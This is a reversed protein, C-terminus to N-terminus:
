LHTHADDLIFRLTALRGEGLADRVQDQAAQWGAAAASRRAHGADTLRIRRARGDGPDAELLLLGAAQLPKLLRSVTSADASLRDALAGVGIGQTRRLNALLGFQGVTLGHPALADDYIQSIRRALRRVKAATCGASGVADPVATNIPAPSSM